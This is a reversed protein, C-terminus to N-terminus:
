TGLPVKTSPLIPPGKPSPYVVRRKTPPYIPPYRTPKYIPPYQKTPYIPLTVPANTTPLPVVDVVVCTQGVPGATAYGSLRLGNKQAHGHDQMLGLALSVAMLVPRWSM